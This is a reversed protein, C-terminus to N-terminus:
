VGAGNTVILELCGSGSAIMRPVGVVRAVVTALLEVAFGVLLQVSMPEGRM